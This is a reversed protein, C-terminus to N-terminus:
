WLRSNRLYAKAEKGGRDFIITHDASSQMRPSTIQHILTWQRRGSQSLCYLAENDQVLINGQMTGFTYQSASEYSFVPKSKEFNLRFFGRNQRILLGALIMIIFVVAALEIKNKKKKLRSLM